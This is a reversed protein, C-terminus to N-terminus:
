CEETYVIYIMKWYYILRNTASNEEPILYTLILLWVQITEPEVIWPWIIKYKMLEYWFVKTHEFVSKKANKHHTM